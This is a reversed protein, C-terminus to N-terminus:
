WSLPLQLNRDRPSALCMRGQSPIIFFTQLLFGSLGLAGGLIIAAAGRPFRIEIIINRFMDEGNGALTEVIESFPVSVSGISINLFLFFIVILFLIGFLVTYKIKKNWGSCTPLHLKM